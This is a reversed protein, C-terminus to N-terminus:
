EGFFIPFVGLECMIWESPPSYQQITRSLLGITNSLDGLDSLIYLVLHWSLSYAPITSLMFSAYSNHWSCSWGRSHERFKGLAWYRSLCMGSAHVLQKIVNDFHGICCNIHLIIETVAKILKICVQLTLMFTLGLFWWMEQLSWVFYIPHHFCSHNWPLVNIAMYYQTCNKPVCNVLFVVLNIRNIQHAVVLIKALDTIFILITNENGPLTTLNHTDCFM